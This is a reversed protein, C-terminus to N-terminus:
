DSFEAAQRDPRALLEDSEPGSMGPLSIAPRITQVQNVANVRNVEGRTNPQDVSHRIRVILDIRKVPDM